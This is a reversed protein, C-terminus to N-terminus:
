WNGRQKVTLEGGNGAKGVSGVAGAPGNGGTNGPGGNAGGPGQNGCGTWQGNFGSNGGPGGSGGQGGPGGAAGVGGRGGHSSSSFYGTGYASPYRVTINGGNGGRGGTGGSGGRGGQGGNGGQAGSGGSGSGGQDCACSAGDAGKGGTGGRGGVGGQGGPGGNGGDGGDSLFRYTPPPGDPIDFTIGGGNKGDVGDKGGSPPAQGVRGTNGIEGNGGNVTSGSGCTGNAGDSATGADAGPLGQGGPGGDAGWLGNENTWTQRSLANLLQPKSTAIVQGTQLWEARGPGHTDITIKGGQILPLPRNVDLSAKLFGPVTNRPATKFSTGLLGAREIPYVYINFPGRVVAEQGDFVLNRVLIVTDGELEVKEPLYLTHAMEVGKLRDDGARIEQLEPMQDFTTQLKKRWHTTLLVEPDFPVKKDRLLKKAREFDSRTSSDVDAQSRNPNGQSVPQQGNAFRVSAFSILLNHMALVVFLSIYATPAKM